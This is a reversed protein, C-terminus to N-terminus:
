PKALAARIAEVRKRNVGFDKRGLRSASRVHVVGAAADVAFEIDDVFKLGPTTFTAYLYHAEELQVAAGPMTAVVAKIRAVMTSADGKILMPDIRAYHRQPHDVWHDAQSSVSNPTGSPPKLKGDRLGLNKPARGNLAGFQAALVVLVVVALLAWGIVRMWHMNNKRKLFPNVVAVAALCHVWCAV